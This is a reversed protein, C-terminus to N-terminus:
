YNKKKLYEVEREIKIGVIEFVKKEVESALVEIDKTVAGSEAVIALPQREFLRAAGVAFGRLNLVKDLIWALPIKIRDGGFEFQPMEPFREKLEAAKEIAIIPNKFFSGATPVIKWDPLKATRIKIVAERVDQPSLRSSYSDKFYEKLDKYGINVRGKTELQLTIKTIVSSRGAETKFISHRYEFACDNATMEKKEGSKLDIVSVSVIVEGIESGYAGINQVPGAGATGPIFSLNELGFISKSCALDVVSDWSEGAAADFFVSDGKERLMTGRMEMKAVLGRFGSDPVLVNSGEGLLALDLSNNKAFTVAEHLDSESKISCFFDAPGGVRFSTHASLPVNREITMNHRIITPPLQSWFLHRIHTSGGVMASRLEYLLIRYVIWGRIKKDM